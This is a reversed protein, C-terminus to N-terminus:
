LVAVRDVLVSDCQTGCFRDINTTRMKIAQELEDWSVNVEATIGRVTETILVGGTGRVVLITRDGGVEGSVSYAM